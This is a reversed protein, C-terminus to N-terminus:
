LPAAALFEEVDVGLGDAYRMLQLRATEDSAPYPIGVLAELLQQELKEAALEQALLADREPDEKALARRKERLTAIAPQRSDSITLAMEWTDDDMAAWLCLLVLNIDAGFDDQLRLCAEKVGPEAYFATSFDWFSGATQHHSRGM